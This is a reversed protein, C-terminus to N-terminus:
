HELKKLIRIDKKRYKKTYPAYRLPFDLFGKVLISKKHTFTDFGAKGHYSGMGSQGIGGFPLHNSAIHMVVDNICGGGFPITHILKNQVKKSKSFIYLALPSPKSLIYAQADEISKYKVVPLLPGFIENNMIPEKDVQELHMPLITPAIKLTQEDKESEPVLKTLRAFHQKNIIKPYEDNHLPDKGYQVAIQTLLESIFLDAIATDVLIYDPAICTQGANILKGWIIKRAADKIDATNDIICPSKGGLELCVPILQKAAMEMVHKGIIPSGTFFIFNFEQELLVTHMKKSGQCLYVYESTFLENIITQVIAFTRPAKHSMQVVATNGACLAQALPLMTLMFPYNWPAMLLTVGYPEPYVMSKSPFNFLATPVRKPKNWSAIHRILYRISHLVLGTETAYSEYPSKGLDANLAEGIADSYKTITNYLAQLQKKRFSTPLTTGSKFFDRQRRVIDPILSSEDM